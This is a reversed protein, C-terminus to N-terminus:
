TGSLSQPPPPLVPTLTTWTSVPPAGGNAGTKIGVGPATFEQAAFGEVPSATQVSFVLLTSTMLPVVREVVNVLALLANAKKEPPAQSFQPTAISERFLRAAM